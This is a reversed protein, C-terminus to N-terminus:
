DQYFVVREYAQLVIISFALFLLHVCMINDSVLEVCATGNNCDFAEDADTIACATAEVAVTSGPTDAVMDYLKNLM